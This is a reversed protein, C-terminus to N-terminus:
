RYKITENNSQNIHSKRKTWRGDKNLKELIKRFINKPDYGIIDKILENFTTKRLSM